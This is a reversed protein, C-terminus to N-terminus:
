LTSWGGCRTCDLAVPVDHQDAEDLIRSIRDETATDVSWGSRDSSPARSCGQLHVSVRRLQTGNRYSAARQIALVHVRKPAPGPRAAVLKLPEPNLILKRDM